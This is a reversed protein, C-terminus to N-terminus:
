ASRTFKEDHVRGVPHLPELPVAHHDQRGQRHELLHAKRQRGDRRQERGPRERRASAHADREHDSRDDDHRQGPIEDPVLKTEPKHRM